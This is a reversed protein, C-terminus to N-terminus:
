SPTDTSFTPGNTLTLTNSKTSSDAVTTGTNEEFRWWGVLNDSSAYNGSDSALNIPTGSNYIAAVEADTLKTDWISVEDLLGKHNYGLDSATYAGLLLTASDLDTGIAANTGTAQSVGNLWLEGTTGTRTVVINYWTDDVVAAQGVHFTTGNDQNFSARIYDTTAYITQIRMFDSNGSNVLGGLNRHSTIADYKVWISYTFDGTGIITDADFASTAYANTGDLNISYGNSSAPDTVFTAGNELIATNSNTSSDTVQHGSGQMRWYAVLNSDSSQDAPEGSNYIATIDSASLTSDYLAFEDIRGSTPNQHLNNGNKLGGIHM